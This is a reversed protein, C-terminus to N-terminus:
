VVLDKFIKLNKLKNQIIFKAMAGRAQKAFIGVVKYQDGKKIKFSVDIIKPGLKKPNVAGFYEKSACNVLFKNKGVTSNIQETLKDGWFEYLNKNGNIGFKTGMELRYPQFGVLPSLIGYLGSLIKLHKQAYNVESKKLTEAQLGVYTDGKFAYVAQKANELSFPLKFSKYRKVNLEALSDSLKMLKAIEDQSKKRLAM